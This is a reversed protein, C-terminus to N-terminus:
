NLIKLLNVILGDHRLVATAAQPECVFSCLM